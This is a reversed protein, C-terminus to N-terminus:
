KTSVDCLTLCLLVEKDVKRMENIAENLTSGTTIIDDVLILHQEKFRKLRFDRPNNLRFERSKGSYSLRNKARLINYRPKLYSSNLHKNLVATHAYGSEVGDDIAITAVVEDFQFEEAFKKFSNEALINYIHFGIDTHKTHLLDKIDSYKYFSIVQINNQLQRKYLQPTLYLKQCSNCIHKLSLSECMLCKM